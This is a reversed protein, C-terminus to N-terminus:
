YWEDDQDFIDDNIWLLTLASNYNRMYWSQEVIVADENYKGRAFWASAPVLKPDRANIGRFGKAAQTLPDLKVKTEVFVRSESFEQSAWFWEVRGDVSYVIACADECFQIYRSATTTLSVSFRHALQSIFDLSPDENGCLPQFFNRPMLLASAFTNAEGEVNRSSKQDKLIDLDADTCINFAGDHHRMELHGLEHAISFRIRHPNVVAESITIIARRGFVALRAESGDLRCYRVTAGRMWAIEELYQLDEVRTIDLEKLMVEAIYEPTPLSKTRTM